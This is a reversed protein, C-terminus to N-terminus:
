FEGEPGKLMELEVTYDWYELSNQGSDGGPPKGDRGRLYETATSTGHGVWCQSNQQGKGPYNWDM